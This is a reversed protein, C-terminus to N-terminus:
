RGFSAEKESWFQWPTKAMAKEQFSPPRTKPLFSSGLVRFCPESSMSKFKARMKSEGKAAHAVNNKRNAISENKKREM